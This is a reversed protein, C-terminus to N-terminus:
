CKTLHAVECPRMMLGCFVLASNMQLEPIRRVIGGGIGGMSTSLLTTSYTSDVLFKPIRKLLEKFQASSTVLILFFTNPERHVNFRILVNVDCFEFFNRM